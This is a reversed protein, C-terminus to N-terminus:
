RELLAFIDGWAVLAYYGFAIATAYPFRLQEGSSIPQLCGADRTGAFALVAVRWAVIRRVLQPSFLYQIISMLGGVLATYLFVHFVAAPGLLAGLAALAKVDGAGMGGMLFPVLFLGLGLVLGLGSFALGSIGSQWINYSLGVLAMAFVLLNPIKTYITDSLCILLLFASAFLIPFDGRGKMIFLLSLVIALLGASYRPLNQLSINGM